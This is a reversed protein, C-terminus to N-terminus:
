RAAIEARDFCRQALAELTIPRRDDDMAVSRAVDCVGQHELELLVADVHADGLRVALDEDAQSRAVAYCLWKVCPELRRSLRM